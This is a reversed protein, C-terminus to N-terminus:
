ETMRDQSGVGHVQLIAIGLSVALLVTQHLCETYIAIQFFHLVRCRQNQFPIHNLVSAWVIQGIRFFFGAKLESSKVVLPLLKYSIM